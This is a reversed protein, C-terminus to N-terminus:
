HVMSHIHILIQQQEHVIMTEKSVHYFQQNNVNSLYQHHQNTFLINTSVNIYLFGDFCSTNYIHFNKSDSTPFTIHMTHLFQIRLCFMNQSFSLTSTIKKLQYKNLKKIKINKGHYIRIIQNHNNVMQIKTKNKHVM